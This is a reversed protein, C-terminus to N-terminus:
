SLTSLAVEIAVTAVRQWNPDYLSWLQGGGLPRKRNVPTDRDGQVM